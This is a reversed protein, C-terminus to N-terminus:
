YAEEITILQAELEYLQEIEQGSLAQQTHQVIFDVRRSIEGAVFQEADWRDLFAIREPNPDCTDVALTVVSALHADDLYMAFRQAEFEIAFWLAQSFENFSYQEGTCDEYDSLAEEIADRWENCNLKENIDRNYIVGGWSGHACAASHLHGVVQRLTEFEMGLLEEAIYERIPNAGYQSVVEKYCNEFNVSQM